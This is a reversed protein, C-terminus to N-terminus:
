LCDANVSILIEFRPAIGEGLKEEEVEEIHSEAETIIGCLYYRAYDGLIFPLFETKVCSPSKGGLIFNVSRNYM